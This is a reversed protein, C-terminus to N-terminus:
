RRVAVRRPVSFLMVCITLAIGAALWTLTTPTLLSRALALASTSLWVSASAAGSHLLLGLWTGLALIVGIGATEWATLVPGPAQAIMALVSARLGPPAPELPLALIARDLEDDDHFNM